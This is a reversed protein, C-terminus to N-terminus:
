MWCVDPVELPSGVAIAWVWPAAVERSGCSGAAAGANLVVGSCWPPVASRRRESMADEISQSYGGDAGMVLVFMRLASSVASAAASGGASNM